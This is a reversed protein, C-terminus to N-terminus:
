KNTLTDIKNKASIITDSLPTLKDEINEEEKIPTLSKTVKPKISDLSVQKDKNIRTPLEQPLNLKNEETVEHNNPNKNSQIVECSDVNFHMDNVTEITDRGRNM